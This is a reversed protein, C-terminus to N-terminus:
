RTAERVIFFIAAANSTVALADRVTAWFRGKKRPVLIVDGADVRSGSGAKVWGGSVSKLIKVSGRGADASYGGARRVYDGLKEEKEYSLLGPREVRGLIYVSGSTAPVYIEDGSYLVVDKSLDKKEFLGVFDCAVVAGRWRSKELYLDLDEPNMREILAPNIADGFTFQPASYGGRLIYAAPLVARPTFGGARAIIESLTTKGEEIDYFGPAAVEGQVSVYGRPTIGPRARVFIQEGPRVPLDEPNLERLNVTEREIGGGPSKWVREVRASDATPLLGGATALLRLLSDDPRWELLGSRNVAGAVLVESGPASRLPVVIRNGEVVHPNATGEGSREFRLLDVLKKGGDAQWLELNRRSALDLLGGAKAIVESTRSYATLTYVGPAAVAGSVKVKVERIKTLTVSAGAASYRRALVARIEAKAQSLTLGGVRAEGVSPILATGEPTVPVAFLQNVAGWLGITLEDGPGVVYENSDVAAEM